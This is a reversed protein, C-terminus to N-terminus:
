NSLRRNRQPLGRCKAPKLHNKTEVRPGSPHFFDLNKTALPCIITIRLKGGQSKGNLSLGRKTTGTSSGPITARRRTTEPALDRWKSRNSRSESAKKERTSAGRVSGELTQSGQDQGCRPLAVEEKTGDTPTRSAEIGIWKENM